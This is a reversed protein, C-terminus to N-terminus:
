APPRDPDDRVRAGATAALADRAEAYADLVDRVPEVMRHRGLGAITARLRQAERDSARRAAWGSLPHVAVTLVLALGIGGGLLLLPVAVPGVAPPQTAVGAASLLGNVTLWGLGVLAAAATLWQALGVLRWWRPHRGARAAADTVAENLAEPLGGVRSRAAASVAEVWPEPLGAAARDAVARAVLSIAARPAEATVPAATPGALGRSDPGAVAGAAGPSVRPGGLRRWPDPGRRLLSRVLPWTMAVGARHRYSTVMAETVAAAGAVQALGDTVERLTAPGVADAPAPPGVLDSLDEVALDVDAALRQVAARRGSVVQELQDRLQALGAPADVASTAITCVGDLGDANLLRRLDTLLRDLDDARLLDAQNLAVVTVDRHRRFRPLHREHIVQDAYKQPDVVWIVLDVLGLMRTVEVAHQREVSDFDPLDLLVLGDLATGDDVHPRTFWHEPPIRLWRQLDVIGDQAGWVCAHTQSTTPRRVGVPSLSRGSLANFLSSKGGGTAGALAVVTHDRSLALREEARTVVTRGWSLRDPPLYAESAKLVRRLGAVRALLTSTEDRADRNDRARQDAARDPNRLPSATV